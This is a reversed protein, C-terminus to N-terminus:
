QMQDRKEDVVSTTREQNYALQLHHLQMSSRDDKNKMERRLTENSVEDLIGEADWAAQKLRQLWLRVAEENVQRKEADELVKRIMDVMNQLKELEGKVGRVLGIEHAAFAGLKNLIEAIGNVLIDEAMQPPM